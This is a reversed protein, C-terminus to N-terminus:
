ADEENTSVLDARASVLGAALDDRLGAPGDVVILGGVETRVREALDMRTLVSPRDAPGTFRFGDAGAERARRARRVVAGAAEGWPDAVVDTITRMDVGDPDAALVRHPFQRGERRLPRDLIWSTLDAPLQPTLGAYQRLASAVVDPNTTVLRDLPVNGARTMYAVMLQGAPVHLRSPFSEWWLQSRRALEQLREVAPRRIAEYRDFAQAADPEAGLAEALGIADEMALKTGSGISFHATHAADGLLVTRGCSWRECRVTRFRLWRTRNGILPHGQLQGAFAEQLYRLSTLDSTDPPPRGPRPRSGPM